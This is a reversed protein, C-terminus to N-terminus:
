LLRNVIEKPLVVEYIKGNELYSITGDIDYPIKDLEGRTNLASYKKHNEFDGKKNKYTLNLLKLGEINIKVEKIDEGEYLESEKNRGYIGYNVDIDSFYVAKRKESINMEYGTKFGNKMISNYASESTIHYVFRDSEYSIIFDDYYKNSEKLHYDSLKTIIKNGM